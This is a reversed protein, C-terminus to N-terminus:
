RSTAECANPRSRRRGHAGFQIATADLVEDDSIAAGKHSDARLVRDDLSVLGGLTMVTKVLM